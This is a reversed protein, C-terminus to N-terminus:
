KSEPNRVVVVPCQAHKVIQDSVSGLLLGVFGGHGRAGVVVLDSNKSENELVVSPHGSVVVQQIQDRTATDTITEIITNNLRARAAAEIEDPPILVAAEGYLYPPEWAAVARLNAGHLKAEALAWRLAEASAQSGDIGVVINQM